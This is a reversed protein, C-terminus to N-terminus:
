FSLTVELVCAEPVFNLILYGLILAFIGELQSVMDISFLGVSERVELCTELFSMKSVGHGISDPCLLVM